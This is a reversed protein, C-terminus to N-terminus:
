CSCTLLKWTSGAAGYMGASSTESVSDSQGTDVEANADSQSDQGCSATMIIAFVGAMLFVSKIM